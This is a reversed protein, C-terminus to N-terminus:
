IYELTPWHSIKFRPSITQRHYLYNYIKQHHWQNINLNPLWFTSHQNELLALLSKDSPFNVCYLRGIKNREVEHWVTWGTNFRNGSFRKFLEIKDFFTKKEKRLLKWWKPKLNTKYFIMVKRKLLRKATLIMNELGDKRM